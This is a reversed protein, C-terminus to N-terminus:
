DDEAAVRRGAAAAVAGPGAGWRAARDDRWSSGATADGRAGPAHRPRGCGDGWAEAFRPLGALLERAAVVADFTAQLCAM